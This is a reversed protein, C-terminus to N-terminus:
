KTAPAVCGNTITVVCPEGPAAPQAVVAPQAPAPQAPAPAPSAAVTAAPPIAPKTAKSPITINTAAGNELNSFAKAPAAKPPETKAPTAAATVPATVAPAMNTKPVPKAATTAPELAPVPAPAPDPELKGLDSVVPTTSKAMTTTAKNVKPKVVAPDQKATAMGPALLPDNTTDIQSKSNLFPDPNNLAKETLQESTLPGINQQPELGTMPETTTPQAMAVDSNQRIKPLKAMPPALGYAFRLQSTANDRLTLEIGKSSKEATAVQFEGVSMLKGDRISTLATNIKMVYVPGQPGNMSVVNALRANLEVEPSAASRYTTAISDNIGQQVGMVIAPAVGQEASVSAFRVNYQRADELQATPKQACSSLGILAACILLRQFTTRLM